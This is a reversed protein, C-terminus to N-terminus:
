TTFRLNINVQRAGNKHNDTLSHFHGRNCATTNHPFQGPLAGMLGRISYVCAGAFHFIFMNFRSINRFFIVQQHVNSQYTQSRTNSSPTGADIDSDAHM